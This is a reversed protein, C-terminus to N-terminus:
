SLRYYINYFDNRLTYSLTRILDAFQYETLAVGTKALQVAKNRKGATKILQSYQMSLEPGGNGYDFFRATQGNYVGTAVSFQPNDFLRATIIGARASDISYKQALLQLNNAFFMQEAQKINLRLTDAVPMDHQTQALTTNTQLFYMCCLICTIKALKQYLM